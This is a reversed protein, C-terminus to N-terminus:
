KITTLEYNYFEDNVIYEINIFEKSVILKKVYIDVLIKKNLKKILIYGKKSDFDYEMYLSNNDRKLINNKYDFSVFTKESDKEIYSIEDNNNVFIEVNYNLKNDNTELKINAFRRLTIVEKLFNYYLILNKYVYNEFKNKM